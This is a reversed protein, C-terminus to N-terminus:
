DNPHRDYTQPTAPQKSDSSVPTTAKIPSINPIRFVRALLARVFQRGSGKISQTVRRYDTWLRVYTDRYLYAHKSAVYDGIANEKGYVRTIVSGQSVRYDFLIQPVYAFEWGHEVAGLWFDWDEMGMVPMNQDYGCNQEWVKKRFVACADIYNWNLLRAREFPGVTWRGEKAGFYQADGYVVGIRSDDRLIRVAHEILAPRIRNDADLPLIFEGSAAAIGANRAAALGSNAQRIVRIGEGQLQDIIRTTQQDTSGDDVLIVECVDESSAHEV